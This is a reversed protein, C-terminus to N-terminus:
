WIPTARAVFSPGAGRQWAPEHLRVRFGHLFLQGVVLLGSGLLTLFFHYQQSRRPANVLRKISVRPLLLRNRSRVVGGRALDIHYEAAFYNLVVSTHREFRGALM